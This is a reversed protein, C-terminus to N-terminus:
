PRLNHINPPPPPPSPPPSQPQSQPQPTPVPQAPLDLPHPHDDDNGDDEDEDDYEDEIAIAKDEGVEKNDDNEADKRDREIRENQNTKICRIRQTLREFYEYQLPQTPDHGEGREVMKRHAEALSRATHALVDDSSNCFIHWYQNFVDISAM